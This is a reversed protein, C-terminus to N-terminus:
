KEVAIISLKSPANLVSQPPDIPPLDSGMEREIEKERSRCDEEPLDLGPNNRVTMSGGTDVQTSSLDCFMNQMVTTASGSGSNRSRVAKSTNKSNRIVNDYVKSDGRSVINLIASGGTVNRIINDHFEHRRGQMVLTGTNGYKGGREVQNEFINHHMRVNETPPKIDIGNDSFSRLTNGYIEVDRVKVSTGQYYGVYIGEGYENNFGAGELLNHRVVVKSISDNPRSGGISILEGAGNEVINDEIVVDRSTYFRILGHNAGATRQGDVRL